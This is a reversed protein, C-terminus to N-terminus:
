PIIVKLSEHLTSTFNIRKRLCLSEFIQAFLSIKVMDPITTQCPQPFTVFIVGRQSLIHWILVMLMICFYKTLQKKQQSNTVTKMSIWSSILSNSAFFVKGSNWLVRNSEFSNKKKKKKIGKNISVLWFLANNIKKVLWILTKHM